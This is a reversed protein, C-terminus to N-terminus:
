CIYINIIQFFQHNEKHYNESFHFFCRLFYIFYYRVSFFSSIDPNLNNTTIVNIAILSGMLYAGSDGLFIKAKPFNFLLFSLLIIIQALLLFSFKTNANDVNVYVLIINIIILNITLLGNFGDILNAGNIVFLFCLIVFISSFLHNNMLFILFSVDINFIKIPLLYIILFLLILMIILRKFPQIKIKLDDLFGVFFMSYSILIYDYLIESYLLFLIGYLISLSTLAAIGGSRTVPSEHFAQPKTFDNDILIGHNIKFSYKSIILFIFFSILAFISLFSAEISETGM